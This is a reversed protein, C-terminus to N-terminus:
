HGIIINYPSTSADLPTKSLLYATPGLSPFLLPENVTAAAIGILAISVGGNVLAFSGLSYARSSSTDPTWPQSARPARSM